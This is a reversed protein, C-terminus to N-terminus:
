LVEELLRIIITMTQGGEVPAILMGYTKRRDKLLQLLRVLRLPGSAGYAHGHILSGGAVNVKELWSQWALEAPTLSQMTAIVQAATLEEIEILDIADLTLGAKTLATAVSTTPVYGMGAPDGADSAISLVEAEAQEVLSTTLDSIMVFAAAGDAPLATYGAGDTDDAAITVMTKKQRVEFPVVVEDVNASAANQRSKEVYLIKEESTINCTEAITAEISTLDLDGFRAAPQAGRVYSALPDFVIQEARNFAYRADHIELPVQSSSDAGGAILVRDQGAALRYYANAIAQLGSASQRQLTYAPITDPIGALLAAYRAANSPLSTQLCVGLLVESLESVVADTAIVKLVAAALDQESLSALKGARLCVPTRAAATIYVKPM